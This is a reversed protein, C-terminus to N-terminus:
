NEGHCVPEKDIEIYGVTWDQSFGCKSNTCHVKYQHETGFLVDIGNKNHMCKGISHMYRVNRYEYILQGEDCNGCVESYPVINGEVAHVPSDMHIIAALCVGLLLLSKIRTKM